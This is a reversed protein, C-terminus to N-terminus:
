DVAVTGILIRRPLLNPGSFAWDDSILSPGVDHGIQGFACFSDFIKARVIQIKVIRCTAVVRGSIVPM